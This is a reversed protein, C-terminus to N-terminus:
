DLWALGIVDQGTYVTMAASCGQPPQECGVLQALRRAMAEMDPGPGASTFVLPGAAGRVPARRDRLYLDALATAPDEGDIVRLPEIMGQRAEFVLPRTRRAAEAAVPGRQVMGSAMLPEVSGVAGLVRARRAAQRAVGAVETMSNGAAAADAAARVVLSQGSAATRSDVVTVPRDALWPTHCAHRWMATVETAPTIIVASQSDTVEIADLYDMVSPARTKLPQGAAIAENLLAPEAQHDPMQRDALLIMIPVVVLSRAIHRGTHPPWPQGSSDTVVVTRKM